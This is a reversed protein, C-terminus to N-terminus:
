LCFLSRYVFLTLLNFLHFVAQSNKLLLTELDKLVTTPAEQCESLLGANTLDVYLAPSVSVSCITIKIVGLEFACYHLRWIRRSLLYDSKKDWFHWHKLYLLSLFARVLLLHEHHHDVWRQRSYFNEINRVSCLLCHAYYFSHLETKIEAKPKYLPKKM